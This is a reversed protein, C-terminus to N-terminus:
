NVKIDPPGWRTSGPHPNVGFYPLVARFVGTSDVESRTTWLFQRGTNTEVPVRITVEAGPELTGQIAKGEVFEYIKIGNVYSNLGKILQESEYVLRFHHLSPLTETLYSSQSGDYELMRTHVLRHYEPAPQYHYSIGTETKSFRINTYKEGNGAVVSYEDQNLIMSECIIFRIKHNRCFAVADQESELLYFGLGEKFGESWSQAFRFPNLMAPREALYVVWHGWDWNCFVGYTPETTSDLIDGPSPTSTKLWNLADIAADSIVQYQPHYEQDSITDGSFYYSRSPFMLLPLALLCLIQHSKRPVYGNVVSGLGCVLAVALHGEFRKHVLTLLLFVLIYVSLFSIGRATEPQRYERLLLLFVMVPACIILWTIRQLARTPFFVGHTTFLGESHFAKVDSLNRTAYGIGKLVEIRVVPISLIACIFLALAAIVLYWTRQPNVSYRNKLWTFPATVLLLVVSACFYCVPTFLSPAYYTFDGSKTWPSNISFLLSFLCPLAFVIWSWKFWGIVAGNRLLQYLCHDLVWLFLVGGFLIGGNWLLQVLSLMLGIKVSSLAAPDATDTTQSYKITLLVLMAALLIEAGHHDAYGAWTFDVHSPIWCLVALASLWGYGPGSCRCILFVIWLTLAGLVPPLFRCISETLEISPSGFSIIQALSAAFFDYLPYWSTQAGKPFSLYPDHTLIEPYHTVTYRTAHLHYYADTGYFGTSGAARGDLWPSCRITLAIVMLLFVVAFPIWRRNKRDETM